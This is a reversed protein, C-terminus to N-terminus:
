EENDKRAVSGKIATLAKQAKTDQETVQTLRKGDFAKVVAEGPVNKCRAYEVMIVTEIAHIAQEDLHNKIDDNDMQVFASIMQESNNVEAIREIKTPFLGTKRLFDHTQDNHDFILVCSLYVSWSMKRRKTELSSYTQRSIGLLNALEDQSMGLKTRLVPLEDVLRSILQLRENESIDTIKMENAM